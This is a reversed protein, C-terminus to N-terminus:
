TMHTPSLFLVFTVSVNKNLDVTVIFIVSKISEFREKDLSQLTSWKPHRRRLARFNHESYEDRDTMNLDVVNKLDFNDKRYANFIDLINEERAVCLLM